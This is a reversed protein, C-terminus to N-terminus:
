GTRRFRGGAIHLETHFDSKIETRASREDLLSDMPALHAAVSDSDNAEVTVVETASAIRLTFSLEETRDTGVKVGTRSSLAFGPASIEVTYM